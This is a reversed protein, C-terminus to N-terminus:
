VLLVISSARHTQHEEAIVLVRWREQWARRALEAIGPERSEFRRIEGGMTELTFAEFDGFRDYILREIKGIFDRAPAPAPHIPLKKWIGTGTPPILIPNGGMYTVRGALQRLYRQMIPYWRSTAPIAQAVWKMISLYQEEPELLLAKTSVPITL